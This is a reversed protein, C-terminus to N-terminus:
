PQSAQLCLTNNLIPLKGALAASAMSIVLNGDVSKGGVHM